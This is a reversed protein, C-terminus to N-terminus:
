SFGLFPDDFNTLPFSVQCPLHFLILMKLIGIVRKIETECNIPVFTTLTEDNYTLLTHDHIEHM